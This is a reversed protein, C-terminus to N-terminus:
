KIIILTPAQKIAVRNERTTAVIDAELSAPPHQVLTVNYGEKKLIKYVAEWGSADEFRHVIVINKANSSKGSNAPFFGFCVMCISIAIAISGVSKFQKEM